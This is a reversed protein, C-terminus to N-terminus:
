LAETKGAKFEEIAAEALEDLKGAAIDQEIQADWQAAEFASFWKRFSALDDRGLQEVANEISEVTDM